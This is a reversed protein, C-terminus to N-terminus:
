SFMKPKKSLTWRNDWQRLLFLAIFSCLIALETIYLINAGFPTILEPVLVATSIIQIVLGLGYSLNKYLGLMILLGVVLELAGLIMIASLPLTIFYFRPYFTSLSEPSIIKNLACLILFLGLGFRLLFIALSLNGSRVM